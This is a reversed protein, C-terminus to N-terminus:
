IKGCVCKGSHYRWCGERDVMIRPLVKPELIAVVMVAALAAVAMLASLGRNCTVAFVRWWPGEVVLMVM